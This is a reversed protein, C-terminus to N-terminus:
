CFGSIYVDNNMFVNRDIYSINWLHEPISISVLHDRQLLCREWDPHSLRPKTFLIVGFLMWRYRSSSTKSRKWWHLYVKCVISKIGGSIFWKKNSSIKLKGGTTWFKSITTMEVLCSGTLRLLLRCKKTKTRRIWLASFLDRYCM